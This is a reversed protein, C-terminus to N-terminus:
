IRIKKTLKQYKGLGESKQGFHHTLNTIDVRAKLEQCIGCMMKEEPQAYTPITWDPENYRWAHYELYATDNQNLYDLYEVLLSIFYSISDVNIKASFKRIPTFNKAVM